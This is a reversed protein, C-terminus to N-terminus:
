KFYEVDLTPSSSVNATTFKYAGLPGCDSWGNPAILLTGVSATPTSGDSTRRINGGELTIYACVTQPPVTLQTSSTVPLAFQDCSNAPVCASQYAGSKVYPASGPLQARAPIALAAGLLLLGVALRIIKSM